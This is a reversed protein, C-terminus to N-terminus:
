ALIASRLRRVLRLYYTLNHLTALRSFLIERSMHLHRLYARSYRTCTECPCEPDVPGTDLRYKAHSIVVKGQSTFLQGNRANRTPLVCDFMDIGAAVAEVIDEPTGVGMLYRPKDAPLRPATHAMVRRMERKSEGVSLGGIAYGDFGISALGALSEDRLHEVMGGQAIGFLANPNGEHARKSREAWRLSLRMSEATDRESAPYPTCEDFVMVIDADLVRQIRM